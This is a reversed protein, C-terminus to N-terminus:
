MEWERCRSPRPASPMAASEPAESINRWFTCAGLATAEERGPLRRARHTQRHVDGPRRARHHAHVRGDDVGDDARVHEHGAGTRGYGTRHVARVGAGLRPKATRAGRAVAGERRGSAARGAGMPIGAVACKLTMGLALGKVEELDVNPHFRIGGKYPGRLSSHQVRYAPFVATKGSDLRVKLRSALIREPVSLADVIKGDARCKKAADKLTRLINNFLSYTKPM